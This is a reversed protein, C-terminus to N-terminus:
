KSAPQEPPEGSAKDAGTQKAQQEPLSKKAAHRAEAREDTQQKLDHQHHDHSSQDKGPPLPTAIWNRRKSCDM